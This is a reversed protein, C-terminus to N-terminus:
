NRLELLKLCTCMKFMMDPYSTKANLLLRLRKQEKGQKTFGIRYVRM